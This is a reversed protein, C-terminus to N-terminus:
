AQQEESRQQCPASRGSLLAGVNGGRAVEGALLLLAKALTVLAPHQCSVVALHRTSAAPLGPCRAAGDQRDDARVRIERRKKPHELDAVQGGDQVVTLDQEGDECRGIRGELPKEVETADPQIRHQRVGPLTLIVSPSSFPPSGVGIGWRM